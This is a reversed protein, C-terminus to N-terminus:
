QGTRSSELASPLCCAQVLQIALACVLFGQSLLKCGNLLLNLLDLTFIILQAGEELFSQLHNQQAGGTM